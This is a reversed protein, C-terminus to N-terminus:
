PQLPTLNADQTMHVLYTGCAELQAFGRAWSPTTDDGYRLWHGGDGSNEWRYLQDYKGAISSLADRADATAGIYVFDNWGAKLQVPFPASLSFGGSFVAKAEAYFWYAEGPALTDLTRGVSTTSLWSAFTATGDTLHYIASVRSPNGLEPPFASGLGMTSQGFFGAHNWGVELPANGCQVVGAGVRTSPGFESTNGEPDTVLSIVWQGPAVPPNEFIFSGAADTLAVAVPVPQAGYDRTGPPTHAAMYLEVACGLCPAGVNGAIRSQVARLFVPHNRLGNAGTDADNADNPNVVGDGNLDIALGTITEFRNAVLRNNVVGLGDEDAAVRIGTTAHSIANARVVSAKSPQRLEVAVGVPAAAGGQSKGITNNAVLVGSFVTAGPAGVRIGITANGVVNPSGGPTETGVQVDPATVLIGTSVLAAQGDAGFGVRVNTAISASGRLELGTECAGLTVASTALTGGVAGNSGNVVLCAATFRGIILGRVASGPGNMVLGNHVGAPLDGGDILVRASSGDISVFANAVAPLPTALLAITVPETPKFVTPSFSVRYPAGSVNANVLEIARRLTCLTPSPCVSQDAVVSDGANTVEVSLEGEAHAISAPAKPLPRAEFGFLCSLMSISLLLARLWRSM